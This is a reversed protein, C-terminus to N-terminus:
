ADERWGLGLGVVLLAFRFMMESVGVGGGFHGFCCGAYGGGVEFGERVAGDANESFDCLNSALRPRQVTTPLNSTM